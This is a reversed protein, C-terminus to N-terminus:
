LGGSRQGCPLLPGPHCLRPWLSGRPLRTRLWKKAAVRGAGEWGAFVLQHHAARRCSRQGRGSRPGWGPPPPTSLSKAPQGKPFPFAQTPGVAPMRSSPMGWAPCPATPNFQSGSCAGTVHLCAAHAAAQGSSPTTHPCRHQATTSPRAGRLPQVGKAASPRTFSFPKWSPSPDCTEPSRGHSSSPVRCFYGTRHSGWCRNM